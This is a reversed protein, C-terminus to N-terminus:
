RAENVVLLSRHSWVEGPVRCEPLSYRLRVRSVTGSTDTSEYSLSDPTVLGFLFSYTNPM